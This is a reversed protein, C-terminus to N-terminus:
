AVWDAPGARCPSALVLAPAPVTFMRRLRQRGEISHVVKPSVPASSHQQSLYKKTHSANATAEGRETNSGQAQPLVTAWGM